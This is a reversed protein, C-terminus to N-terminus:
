FEFLLLLLLLLALLRRHFRLTWRWRWRGLVVRRREVHTGGRETEIRVVLHVALHEDRGARVIRWRVVQLYWAKVVRGLIQRPIRVCLREIQQLM